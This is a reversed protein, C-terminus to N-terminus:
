ATAQNLNKKVTVCNDTSMAKPKANIMSAVPLGRIERPVCVRAYM